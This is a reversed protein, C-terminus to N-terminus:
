RSNMWKKLSRRNLYVVAAVALISLITITNKDPNGLGCGCGTEKNCYKEKSHNGCGGM